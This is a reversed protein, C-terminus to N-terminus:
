LKRIDGKFQAIEKMFIFMTEMNIESFKFKLIDQNQLLNRSLLEIM